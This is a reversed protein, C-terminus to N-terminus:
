SRFRCCCRPNVFIAAAPVMTTRLSFSSALAATSDGALRKTSRQFRKAPTAGNVAARAYERALFKDTATPKLLAVCRAGARVTATTDGLGVRNEEAVRAILAEIENAAPSRGTRRRGSLMTNRLSRNAISLSCLRRGHHRRRHSIIVDSRGRRYSGM